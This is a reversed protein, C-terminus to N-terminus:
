EKGDNVPVSDGGNLATAPCAMWNFGRRAALLEHNIRYRRHKLRGLQLVRRVLIGQRTLEDLNENISYLCGGTDYSIQNADAEHGIMTLMILRATAPHEKGSRRIYNLVRQYEEWCDAYLAVRTGTDEAFLDKLIKGPMRGERAFVITGM